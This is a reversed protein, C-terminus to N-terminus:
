ANVTSTSSARTVIRVIQLVVPTLVVTIVIESIFNIMILGMLAVFVAGIGKVAENEMLPRFVTCVMLVYLGTNVVPCLLTGVIVGIYGQKIKKFGQYVIGSIWGAAIGKGFCTIVTAPANFNLMAMSAPDLGALIMGLVVAGFVAGLFAGAAPGYLIAGLAIPVLVLSIPVPGVHIGFTSLLQLLIVIAALVGTGVMKQTKSVNSYM